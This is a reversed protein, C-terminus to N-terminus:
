AYQKNFDTFQNTRLASAIQRTAGKRKNTTYNAAQVPLNTQIM